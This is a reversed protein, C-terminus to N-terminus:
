FIEHDVPDATNDSARDLSLVDIFRRLSSLELLQDILTEMSQVKPIFTIIFTENDGKNIKIEEYNFPTFEDEKNSYDDSSLDVSARLKEKLKAIFQIVVLPKILGKNIKLSVSIHISNSSFTIHFDSLIQITNVLYDTITCIDQLNNEDYLFTIKEIGNDSQISLIQNITTPSPKRNPIIILSDEPFFKDLYKIVTFPNPSLLITKCAPTFTTQFFSQSEPLKSSYTSHNFLIVNLLPQHNNCFLALRQTPTNLFVQQAFPPSQITKYQSESLWSPKETIPSLQFILSILDNTQIPELSIDTQKNANIQQFLTEPPDFFLFTSLSKILDIKSLTTLGGSLCNLMGTEKDTFLYYTTESVSFQLYYKTKRSPSTFFHYLIQDYTTAELNIM